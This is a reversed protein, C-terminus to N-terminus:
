NLKTNRESILHLLTILNCLSTIYLQKKSNKKTGDLCVAFPRLSTQCYCIPIEIVIIFSLMMLQKIKLLGGEGGHFIDSM